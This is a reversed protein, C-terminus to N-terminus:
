PNTAVVLGGAPPADRRNRLTLEVFSPRVIEAWEPEFAAYIATTQISEHGLLFRGASKPLYSSRDDTDVVDL